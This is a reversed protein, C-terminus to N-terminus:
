GTDPFVAYAFVIDPDAAIRDLQHEQKRRHARLGAPACLISRGVGVLEIM